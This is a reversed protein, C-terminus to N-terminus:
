SPTLGGQEIRIGAGLRVHLAAPAQPRIKTSGPSVLQTVGTAVAVKGARDATHRVEQPTM